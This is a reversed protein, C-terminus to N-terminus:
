RRHPLTQDARRWSVLVVRKEADLTVPAGPALGHAALVDEPTQVPVEPFVPRGSPLRVGPARSLHFVDYRGLFLAFAEPGGIVAVDAGPRGLAMLAEELLAGAPNWLCARANSPDPALGHISRTLVLRYRSAAGAVQERSYRGHVIVGARNLGAEFFKQDAEFIMSPPMHRAADALMGDQSVIAYGEIRGAQRDATM